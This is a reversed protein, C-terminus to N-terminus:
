AGHIDALSSVHHRAYTRIGSELDFRRHENLQHRNRVNELRKSLQSAESWSTTFDMLLADIRKIEADLRKLESRARKLDANLGM